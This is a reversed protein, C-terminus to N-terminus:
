PIAKSEGPFRASFARHYLLDFNMLEPHLHRLSDFVRQIRLSIKGARANMKQSDVKRRTMNSSGSTPCVAHYGAGQGEKCPVSVGNGVHCIGADALAQLGIHLWM